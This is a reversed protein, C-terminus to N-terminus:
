KASHCVLGPVPNLLAGAAELMELSDAPARRRSPRQRAGEGERVRKRTRVRAQERGRQRVRPELPAPLPSMSPRPLSGQDFSRIELGRGRGLWAPMSTGLPCVVPGLPWSPGPPSIELRAVPPPVKRQAVAIGSVACGRDRQRRRPPFSFVGDRSSSKLWTLLQRLRRQGCAEPATGHRADDCRSM